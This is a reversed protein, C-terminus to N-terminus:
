LNEDELPDVYNVKPNSLINRKPTLQTFSADEVLVDNEKAKLRQTKNTSVLKEHLNINISINNNINIVNSTSQEKNGQFDSELQQRLEIMEQLRVKSPSRFFNNKEISNARVHQMTPNNRLGFEGQNMNILNATHIKSRAQNIIEEEKKRFKESETSSLSKPSDIKNNEEYASDRDDQAENSKKQQREAQNKLPSEILSDEQNYSRSISVSFESNQRSSLINMRSNRAQPKSENKDVIRLLNSNQKNAKNLAELSNKKTDDKIWALQLLNRAHKRKSSDVVFCERLFNLCEKSLNQPFEPPSDMEILKKIMSDKSNIIGEFPKKKTAMEIIMCGIAWSDLSPNVTSDKIIEPAIM